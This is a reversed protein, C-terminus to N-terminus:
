ELAAIDKDIIEIATTTNKLSKKIDAMSKEDEVAKAIRHQQLLVHWTNVHVQRQDRYLKLLIAPDIDYKLPEDLKGNLSITEEKTANM